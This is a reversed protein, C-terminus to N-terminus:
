TKITHSVHTVNITSLEYEPSRNEVIEAVRNCFWFVM